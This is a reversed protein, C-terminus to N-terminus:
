GKAAFINKLFIFADVVLGWIYALNEKFLSSKFVSEIRINFSSLIFLAIIIIVIIKIFGRNPNQKMNM